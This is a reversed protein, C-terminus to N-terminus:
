DPGELRGRDGTIGARRDAEAARRERADANGHAEPLRHPEGVHAIFGHHKALRPPSLRIAGPNLMPKLVM